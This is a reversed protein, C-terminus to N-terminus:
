GNKKGGNIGKIAKDYKEPNKLYAEAAENFFDALSSDNQMLALRLQKHLSDPLRVQVQKNREHIIDAKEPVRKVGVIIDNYRSIIIDNNSLITLM